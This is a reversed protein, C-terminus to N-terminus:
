SVITTNQYGELHGKNDLIFLIFEEREAFEVSAGLVWMEASNNLM